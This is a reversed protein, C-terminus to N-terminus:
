KMNSHVIVSYLVLVAIAPVFIILIIGAARRRQEQTGIKIRAMVVYLLILVAALCFAAGRSPSYTYTGPQFCTTCANIIVLGALLASIICAIVSSALKDFYWGWLGFGEKWSFARWFAPQEKKNGPIRRM